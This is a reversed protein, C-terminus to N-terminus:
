ARRFLVGERSTSYDDAIAAAKVLWGQHVAEIEALANDFMPEAPTAALSTEATVRTHADSPTVETVSREIISTTM